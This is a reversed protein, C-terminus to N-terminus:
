NNFIDETTFISISDGPSNFTDETRHDALMSLRNERIFPNTGSSSSNNFLTDERNSPHFSSSSSNNNMDYRCSPFKRGWFVPCFCCLLLGEGVLRSLSCRLLM